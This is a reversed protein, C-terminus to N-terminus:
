RDKLNYNMRTLTTTITSRISVVAGNLELKVCNVSNILLNLFSLM